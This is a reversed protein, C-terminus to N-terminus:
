GALVAITVGDGGERPPATEYRRVLPHRALEERIAARLAGTGKGHIIRIFPLGARFADDLHGEFTHIAEEARQGRLDLEAAVAIVPPLNVAGPTPASLNPETREIRDVSVKMRMSGFRVEVRGDPGVGTVAEGQQPIDRVRVVDGPSVPELWTTAQEKAAKGAAEIEADLAELREGAARDLTRDRERRELRELERQARAVLAEGERRARGLIAERESEISRHQDALRLRLEEAELQAEQEHTRAEAAAARERRAEDLLGDLERTEPAIREEARALVGEEIGLRRAIAIANSQGPLGITLHYTPSLTQLNFEVSANRLRPEEQAFTKLEGHHTTALITCGRDLLTELIARSLAAGEEPDTGAGLEDLLVLTGPAAVELIGRMTRMHSSFTSLSQEISQEDGIDAHIAAYTVFRSGEDCPVPLGAQVMACLLGATKLAVTKGGTNPGTVLLGPADEGLNLEIPVVDGHLLPHRARVLTTQGREGLWSDDGDARPLAAGLRKGLLVKARLLDLQAMAALTALAEEEREGVMASLQLLVRREEREEALQLERVENGTEVVSMPELFVTAGSSSVDHVIGPLQGRFDAKVPIVMRGNRETLLEEQAVGRRVAEALASRARQELRGQAGRLERRVTALELSAEDAVAGRPTISRRVEAIFPRFDAIAETIAAIRPTRQALREALQRARWATDLAGGAEQLDTPEIAQGITAAHAMPRLDRMGGLPVDLGMQDIHTMEATEAQLALVADHEREPELALARERGLSFATEGALMTRVKNFELVRLTHDNMVGAYPRTGPSVVSAPPEGRKPTQGLGSLQSTWRGDRSLTRHQFLDQDGVPSLDRQPDHAGQVVEPDGRHRDVGLDIAERPVHAVGVLRIEDARRLGGLAVEVAFADDVDGGGAAGIGDMGAVAEEGLVGIEGLRALLRPEGENAGRRGGNAQQAVLIGRARQRGAHTHGHHGAGAGKVREIPRRLECPLDAVGDGDLRDRAATTTADAKDLALLVQGPRQVEGAALREDGEAIALEVELRLHLTHAVNLHLDDRVGEAVHDRQPLALAGDLAAVLLDNLLRRRYHDTGVQAAREVAGCNADGAGSAVPAGARDLEQEGLFLLVVEQLDVGAELNLVRDGFHSRPHVEYLVLDKDGTAQLQRVVFAIQQRATPRDLAANDGLVRLVAEEGRHTPDDEGALGGPRANADLAGQM